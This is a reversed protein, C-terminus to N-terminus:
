EKQTFVKIAELVTLCGKYPSDDSEVFNGEPDIDIYKLLDLYFADQIEETLEM